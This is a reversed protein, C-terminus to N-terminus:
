MLFKGDSRFGMSICPEVGGGRAECAETYHAFRCPFFLVDGPTLLAERPSAINECPIGLDLQLRRAMPHDDPYPNLSELHEENWLLMRKRGRIQCLYSDQEDFHLPSVCGPTSIWLRGVVNSGQANPLFSLDCMSMMECPALAQMYVRESEGYILPPLGGRDTRLRKIFEGTSMTVLRSPPTFKGSQVDPHSERCFTVEPGPSCRVMGRRLSRRLIALDWREVSPWDAGVGRFIVPRDRKAVAEWAAALSDARRHGPACEFEDIPEGHLTWPALQRLSDAALNRHLNRDVLRHNSAFSHISKALSLIRTDRLPSAHWTARTAANREGLSEADPPLLEALALNPGDLQKIRHGQAIAEEYIRFLAVPNNKALHMLQKYEAAPVSKQIQNRQAISAWLAEPRRLLGPSSGM